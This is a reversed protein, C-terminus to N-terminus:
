RRPPKYDDRCLWRIVMGVAVLVGLGIVIWQVYLRLVAPDSPLLDRRMGM